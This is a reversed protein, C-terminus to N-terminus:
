IWRGSHQDGDFADIAAALLSLHTQQGGFEFRAAV